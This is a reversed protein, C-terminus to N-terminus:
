REGFRRPPLSRLFTWLAARETENMARLMAIPMFPNLPKGDRKIGHDLLRNWDAETATALGTEHPTINAPVPLDSPAGPIPGGSFHEGHCGTCSRALKSGYEATVEAPLTKPRPATHDIRRAVDLPIVDMRDLVKGLLGIHSEGLTRDVPPLSRLYSVLAILDDDPWWAIDQSPMFRLSKGDAKIGHRIVRALEGDSYQGAIGGKGSTLNSGNVKGIPGIDEGDKGGLDTGHCEGCGGISEVLHKGREIVAPDHVAHIDLPAIDYVKNLSADFASAQFWAFAAGGIAVLVVVVALGLFLKRLM